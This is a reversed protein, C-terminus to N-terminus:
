LNGLRIAKTEAFVAAASSDVATKVHLGAYHEAASITKSGAGEAL